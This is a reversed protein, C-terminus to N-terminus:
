LNAKKLECTTNRNRTSLFFLAEGKQPEYDAHVFMCTQGDTVVYKDWGSALTPAKLSNYYDQAISALYLTTM